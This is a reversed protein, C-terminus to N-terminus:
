LHTVSKDRARTSIRLSGAHLPLAQKHPVPLLQRVMHASSVPQQYLVSGGAQKIDPKRDSLDQPRPLATSAQGVSSPVPRWRQSSFALLPEFSTMEVSRAVGVDTLMWTSLDAQRTCMRCAIQMMKHVFHLAPCLAICICIIGHM